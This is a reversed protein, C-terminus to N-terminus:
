SPGVQGGVWQRFRLNKWDLGLQQQQQELGSATVQLARICSALPNSLMVFMNPSIHNTLPHGNQLKFFPGSLGGRAITYALVGEVPCLSSNTRGMFFDVGKGWQDTKSCKPHVKLMTPTVYNDINHWTDPSNLPHYPHHNRWGELIWLLM